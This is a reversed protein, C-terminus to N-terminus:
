RLGGGGDDGGGGIPVTFAPGWHDRGARKNVRPTRGFEGTVVLMVRRDLGRQYLDEILASVARDFHPLRWRADRFVHCNM